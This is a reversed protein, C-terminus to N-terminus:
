DNKRWYWLETVEHSNVLKSYRNIMPKRRTKKCLGFNKYNRGFMSELRPPLPPAFYVEEYEGNKRNTLFIDLSITTGDYSTYRDYFHIRETLYTDDVHYYFHTLATGRKASKVLGNQMSFM